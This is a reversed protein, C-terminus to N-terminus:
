RIAQLFQSSASKTGFNRIFEGVLSIRRYNFSFELTTDMLLDQQESSLERSLFRGNTNCFEVYDSVRQHIRIAQEQMEPTLRIPKDDAQHEKAWRSVGELAQRLQAGELHEKDTSFALKVESPLTSQDICQWSFRTLSGRTQRIRLIEEEDISQPKRDRLVRDIDEDSLGVVFEMQHAFADWGKIGETDEKTTRYLSRLLISQPTRRLRRAMQEPSFGLSLRMTPLPTETGGEEFPYGQNESERPHTMHM